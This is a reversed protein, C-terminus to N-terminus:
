ANKVGLKQQVLNQISMVGIQTKGSKQGGRYVLRAQNVDGVVAPKPAPLGRSLYVDDSSREGRLAKPYDFQKGVYSRYSETFRHQLYSLDDMETRCIKPWGGCDEVVAHIVPDDFVVDTYAGVSRMADFVKGWAQMSRDTSTGRLQRVVDSPKPAYQGRDADMAHATLAKRVQELDFERCAAWYVSLVFESADTKYFSLLQSIMANFERMDTQRM